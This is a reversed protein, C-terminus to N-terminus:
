PLMIWVDPTFVFKFVERGQKEWYSIILPNAWETRKDIKIKVGMGNLEM